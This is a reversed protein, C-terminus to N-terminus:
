SRRTRQTRKDAARADDWASAISQPDIPCLRLAIKIADSFGGRHRRVKLLQDLIDDVKAQETAYFSVTTKRCGEFEYPPPEPEPEPKSKRPTRPKISVEEIPAPVAVGPEDEGNPDPEAASEPAESPPVPIPAPAEPSSAVNPSTALTEMPVPASVAHPPVPVSETTKFSAALLASLADPKKAM